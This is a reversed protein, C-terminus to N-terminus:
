AGYEQSVVLDAYARSLRFVEALEPLGLEANHLYDFKVQDYIDPIKSLDFREKVPSYFDDHLKAWRERLLWLSEGGCGSLPVPADVHHVSCDAGLQSSSSSCSASSSPAAATAEDAASPPPLRTPPRGDAAPLASSVTVGDVAMTMMDADGAVASSARPALASASASSPSTATSTPHPQADHLPDPASTASSVASVVDGSSTQGHAQSRLIRALDSDQFRPVSGAVSTGGGVRRVAPPQLSEDGATAARGATATAGGSGTAHHPPRQATAAPLSHLASTPSSSASGVPSPQALGVYGGGACSSSAASSDASSATSAPQPAAGVSIRSPSSPVSPATSRRSRSSVGGGAEYAAAAAAADAAMMGSLRDVLASILGRIRHLTFRPDPGIIALARLLAPARTPAIDDVLTPLLQAELAELEGSTPFRIASTLSTSSATALAAAAATGGASAVSSASFGGLPRGEGTCVTLGGAGMVDSGPAAAGLPAGGGALPPLAAAVAPSPLPGMHPSGHADFTVAGVGGDNPPSADPSLQPSAASDIGALPDAGPPSSAAAHPAAGSAAARQQLANGAVLEEEAGVRYLSSTLARLQAAAAVGSASAATLALKLRRKLGSMVDHAPDSDDLLNSTNVTKVLSALIPTLEGELDLFGKVFAAATMQVRGEDSSYIKLDHRYTSHLRLLGVSEGPYLVSRFHQGLVEAHARGAHTLVGGWKLVSL